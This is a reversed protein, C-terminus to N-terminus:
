LDGLLREAWPVSVVDDDDACARGAQSRGELQRALALSACDQLGIVDYTPNGASHFTVTPTKIDATV